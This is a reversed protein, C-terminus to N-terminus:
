LGRWSERDYGFADFDAAFVRYVRDALEQDFVTEKITGSANAPRALKSETFDAPIGLRNTIHLMGQQFGDELKHVHDYRVKRACLVSVQTDWHQNRAGETQSEIYSVFSSFPFPRDDSAGPLNRQAAFRRLKPVLPRMSRPYRPAHFGKVLKDKWASLLRGYPNRVFTHFAYEAPNSFVDVYDGLPATTYRRTENIPWWSGLMPGRGILKSGEVVIERFATSGVKPNLWVVLRAPRSIFINYPSVHASRFVRATSSLAGLSPFAM